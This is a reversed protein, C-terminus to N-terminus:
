ALAGKNTKYSVQETIVVGLSNYITLLVQQSKTFANLERVSCISTAQSSWVTYVM